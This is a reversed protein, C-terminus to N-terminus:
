NKMTFVKIEDTRGDIGLIKHASPEIIDIYANKKHEAAIERLSQLSIEKIYMYKDAERIGIQVLYRMCTEESTFALLAGGHMLVGKTTYKRKMRLMVPEATYLLLGDTLEYIADWDKQNLHSKGIKTRLTSLDEESLAASESGVKSEAVAENVDGAESEIGSISKKNRNFIAM